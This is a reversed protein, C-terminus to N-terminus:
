AGPRVPRGAGPAPEGSGQSSAQHGPRLFGALASGRARDREGASLPGPMNEVLFGEPRTIVEYGHDELAGRSLGPPAALSCPPWGPISRRRGGAVQRRPCPRWGSGCGPVPRTNGRRRAPVAGAPGSRCVPASHAPQAALEDGSLADARGGRASGGPRPRARCGGGAQLGGGRGTGRGAPRGRAAEAVERTSGSLSEYVVTARM